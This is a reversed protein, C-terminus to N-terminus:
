PHFLRTVRSTPSREAEAVAELTMAHDGLIDQLTRGGLLTQAKLLHLPMVSHSQYAGLVIPYLDQMYTTMRM